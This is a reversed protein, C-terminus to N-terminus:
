RETASKVLYEEPKSGRVIIVTTNDSRPPPPPAEAAAAEAKAPGLPLSSLDRETIRRATNDNAEGPQRLILSLRGIKEALLVKQAEETTVELTVARALMAPRDPVVGTVQDIALVKVNQLIINSYSEGSQDSRILAIDVRSNPQVFGAVGSVDDVRVTVARKDKDLLTSLLGGQGAVGVKSRLLPENRAIPQLAIRPGDKLFDKKTAFAGEPLNQAPWAIETIKNEPIAVGIELPAAAVVITMTPSSPQTQGQIVARAMFAAIAGMVIAAALILLNSTRV